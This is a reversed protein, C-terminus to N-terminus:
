NFMKVTRIESYDYGDSILSSKYIIFLIEFFAIYHM